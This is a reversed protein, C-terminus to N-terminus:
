YPVSKVKGPLEEPLEEVKVLGMQIADAWFFMARHQAYGLYDFEDDEEEPEDKNVSETVQQQIEALEHYEEGREGLEERAGDEGNAGDDTKADDGFDPMGPVKAQIVGWAVWQATNALRWMRTERMLRAVEQDETAKHAADEATPNAPGAQPTRADAMFDSISSTPRRLPTEGSIASQSTPTSPGLKPTSVNFQPRHRVYARIFREQEEPTPYWKSHFAYPKRADAYNYCWETFHNAFELGPLNANAYEFDIVVLQKHANVPLLLPSQGTPKLRLINGYQTDNHSFVLQERM